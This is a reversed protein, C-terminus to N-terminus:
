YIASVRYTEVVNRMYGAPNWRSIFQQQSEGNNNIALCALEYRRGTVPKFAATWQRFSYKGHDKGLKAEEWHKGGDSSFLVRAIGYGGDFAIGKIEHMYGGRIRAGDALSTVFSRVNMRNIPVTKVGQQGPEMCACPNDPIRYAPNMWFNKDTTNIVEIDDLMKVWYTAFWGPVVLRVPYGNLVPLAEGNMSYALLVDEGLAVDMDLAKIFDPTAPLVPGDAGNLRVQVADAEIGAKNLIDRLRVGKWLANGMAGNAWEGGAVRPNFLGRSNGSCQCVAAIEVSEFNNKLDAVTLTMPQKVRGHVKIQFTTGDVRTPVDALHWRVFFADNATFVGDNFLHFPTELQVPRATMLILERKQPYVALERRGNVMPLDVTAAEAANLGSRGMLALSGFVATKRFFSRRSINLDSPLFLGKSKDDM